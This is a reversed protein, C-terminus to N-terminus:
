EIWKITIKQGNHGERIAEIADIGLLKEMWYEKKSIVLHIQPNAVRVNEFIGHYDSVYYEQIYGVTKATFHKISKIKYKQIKNEVHDRPTYPNGNDNLKHEIM